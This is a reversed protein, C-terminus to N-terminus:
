APDTYTPEGSSAISCSFEVAGDVEGTVEYNTLNFTGDLTAGNPFTITGAAQVNSSLMKQSFDDLDDGEAVGEIETEISQTGAESLMTRWGSDDDSTVDIPEAGFTITKSTVGGVRASAGALALSVYLGRGSYKAM